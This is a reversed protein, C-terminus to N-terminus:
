EQTVVFRDARGKVSPYAEFCQTSKLSWLGTLEVKSM